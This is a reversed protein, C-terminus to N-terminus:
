KVAQTAAEAAIIVAADDPLLFGDAELTRPAYEVLGRANPKVRDIDPIAEKPSLEGHLRAKWLVYDGPRFTGYAAKSVIELRTVDASASTAIALSLALVAVCGPFLCQM